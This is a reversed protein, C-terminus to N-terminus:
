AGMLLSQMKRIEDRIDAAEEFDLKRAAAKMAEEMEIIESALEEQNLGQTMLDHKRSKRKKGKKSKQVLDEIGMLDRIENVVTRPTIGMKQNYAFQVKRRRETEQVAQQISKTFRDAYLIVQGHINRAARGMTQILARENRLFGEKDADLIAVLSVEPLDLGERLLNVGVLCDYKGKRLDRLIMSRELTKVESHLYQSRIKIERLYEDLDEAMRKTLTTVLTREKREARIRIEEIVDDVQNKLPRVSVSPDLLGTPRIVQQVINQSEKMEYPGPTASICVLQNIKKEFEEFKLPRNDKASPLRFGHEILVKKRAQDGEYMGRLQPFTAHSEDIFILFNKPFYDILVSPAEGAARGSMHRSYNEIGKCYGIADMMELDYETRKRLREAEVIMNQSEFYKLQGALERKIHKKARQMKDRPLVYHSAPNILIENEKRVVKGSVTEIEYLGDIEDGFLEIRVAKDSEYSPVVEIVDGRVRFKTRMLDTDNREYYMRVLAEIIEKRTISQGAKLHLNMSKYDEPAGLGYICSVSAVIITDPRTLVSRTARHRLKDIEENVSADKEIYIDRQPIYAEPQYYDYYSVFYEVSNKPFFRKFENCLQAALTKNHTIVLVPRNVKAILNAVTFTKGSGTVGKLTQIRAGQEIGKSLEKIVKPQDGCPQFDSTLEFKQPM